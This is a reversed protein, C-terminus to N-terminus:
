RIEPSGVSRLFCLLSGFDALLVKGSCDVVTKWEGGNTSDRTQLDLVGQPFQIRCESRSLGQQRLQTLLNALEVPDPPSTVAPPQHFRRRDKRPLAAECSRSDATPCRSRFVAPCDRQVQPPRSTALIRTGAFLVQRDRDRQNLNTFQHTSYRRVSSGARRSAM